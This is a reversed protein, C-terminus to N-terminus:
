KKNKIMEVYFKFDDVNQFINHINDIHLIKANTYKEILKLYRYCEINNEDDILHCLDCDCDFERYLNLNYLDNEYIFDYVVFLNIEYNEDDINEVNEDYYLHIKVNELKEDINMKYYKHLTLFLDICIKNTLEHAYERYNDCQEFIFNEIQKKIM